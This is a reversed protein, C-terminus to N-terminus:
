GSERGRRTYRYGPAVADIGQVEPTITVSQVAMVPITVKVLGTLQVTTDKHSGLDLLEGNGDYFKLEAQLTTTENLDSADVDM